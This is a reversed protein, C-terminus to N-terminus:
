TTLSCISYCSIGKKKGLFGLKETTTAKINIDNINCLLVSRINERMEDIYKNLYPKEAVVIADINNIKYHNKKMFNYTKKLLELSSIDKYKDDKDSFHTGIDDMNLAGLISDIIAHILCDADSHGLLGKKYPICVGGLILKRRRVLRHTDYGLGVRIDNGAKKEIM